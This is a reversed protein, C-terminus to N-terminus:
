TTRFRPLHPLLMSPSWDGVAVGDPTGRRRLIIAVEQKIDPHVPVLPFGPEGSNPNAWEANDKFKTGSISCRMERRPNQLPRLPSTHPNVELDCGLHTCDWNKTTIVGKLIRAKPAESVDLMPIWIPVEHFDDSSLGTLSQHTFLCTDDRDYLAGYGLYRIVEELHKFEMEVPNIGFTSLTNYIEVVRGSGGYSIGGVDVNSMAWIMNNFEESKMSGASFGEWLHSAMHTMWADLGEGIREAKSSLYDNWRATNEIMDAGSFATARGEPDVMGLYVTM